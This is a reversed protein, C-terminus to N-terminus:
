AQSCSALIRLGSLQRVFPAIWSLKRKELALKKGLGNQALDDRIATAKRFLFPVQSNRVKTKGIVQMPGVISITLESILM